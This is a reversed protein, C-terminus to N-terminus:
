ALDYDNGLYTKLQAHLRSFYQRIAPPKKKTLKAIEEYTFDDVYRWRLLKQVSKPLHKILQEFDLQRYDPPAGLEIDELSVIVKHQRWYSYLHYKTIGTLWQKLNGKAADFTDSHELAKMFVESVLDHAIDKDEVRLHIYRYIYDFLDSYNNLLHHQSETMPM